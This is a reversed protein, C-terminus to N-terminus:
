TTRVLGRDALCRCVRRLRLCRACCDVATVDEVDEPAAPPPKPHADALHSCLAQVVVSLGREELKALGYHITAHNRFGMVRGIDALSLGVWNRLVGYAIARADDIHGGREKSALRAYGVGRCSEVAAFAAQM